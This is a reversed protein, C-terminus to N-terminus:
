EIIIRVKDTDKSKLMGVLYGEFRRKLEDLTCPGGDGKLINQLNRMSLTVKDLGSFMMQVAKIFQESIQEPFQKSANFSDIANKQATDLLDYSKKLRSDQLNTLLIQKWNELVGDIDDDVQTLVLGVASLDREEVPRFGCHQCTAQLELEDKKLAYCAKLSTINALLSQLQEYPLYAIEKLAM